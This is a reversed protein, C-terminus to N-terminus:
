LQATPVTLFPANIKLGSWDEVAERAASPDTSIVGSFRAAQPWILTGLLM